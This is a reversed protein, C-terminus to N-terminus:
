EAAARKSRKKKPEGDDSAPSTTQPAAPAAQSASPSEGATQALPAAPNGGFAVLGKERLDRALTSTINLQQGGRVKRGNHAFEATVTVIM